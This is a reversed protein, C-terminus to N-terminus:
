GPARGEKVSPAAHPDGDFARVLAKPAQVRWADTLLERMEDADVETLRVLVAPFGNYHPETFYKDPEAAILEQKAEEGPVRVALVAPNPVRPKKPDVRENWTWCLVKDKSGARVSFSLGDGATVEPLSNAIECV